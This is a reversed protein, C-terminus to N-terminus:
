KSDGESVAGEAGGRCMGLKKVKNVQMVAIGAGAGAGIGIGANTGTLYKSVKSVKSVISVRSGKSVPSFKL